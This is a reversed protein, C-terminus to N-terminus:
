QQKHTHAWTLPQGGRLHETYAEKDNKNRADSLLIGSSVKIGLKIKLYKGQPPLSSGAQSKM